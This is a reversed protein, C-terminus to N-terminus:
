EAFHGVDDPDVAGVVNPVGHVAQLVAVKVESQKHAPFAAIVAQVLVVFQAVATTWDQKSAAVFLAALAAFIATM